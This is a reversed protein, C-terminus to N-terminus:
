AFPSPHPRRPPTAFFPRLKTAMLDELADRHEDDAVLNHDEAPDTTLDFLQCPTLRDEDVVLRYRDTEFSAFGWNESIAVSRPEPAHDDLHGLLSRGDSDPVSPAGAIERVTAPVDLHEVLDGIVRPRCGGPPRVILPVRVTPEYLVCKSMLGHDGGMEGHDSTYVIWTEDLVAGADLADVIRGVAHDIVSVNACYARRMGAVADDTMTETDSLALMGRMLKGYAGLHELDPRTTSAPSRPIAPGYREVAESPADWPDHPGPFGVFLFFPAARDYEEIWRVTADGHWTDIYDDLPVPSPSADWMPVRKTANTGREHEGHYSRDALHQRYRSLLGRAELHDTYRNAVQTTFKDGTEIVETFGREHLRPALEDVHAVQIDDDRTLHAKGLMATHYGAAQLAHLYTPWGSPVEAWNTYVGHDRVYRETLFSARAPMCLPGQCSVRSFRLAEAALADLRPTQVVPDGACGMTDARHQDAMILVLNPRDTV